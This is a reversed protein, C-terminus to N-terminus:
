ARRRLVLVAPTGLLLATVLMWPFSASENIGASGTKPPVPTVTPGSGVTTTTSTATPTPTTVTTPTSTPTSTPTPTPTPTSTPTPTPTRTPTPTPTPTRTPTPTPNPQRKNRVLCTESTDNGVLQVQGSPACDLDFEPAFWGAKSVETVLYVVGPAIHLSGSTGGCPINVSHLPVNSGQPTVNITFVDNTAPDCVKRITLSGAHNTIICSANQTSAPVVGAPACDLEFTAPAYGPAPVEGVTYQVNTLIALSGTSGNCPISVTHVPVNSGQPTVTITFLDNTAPECLKRVTLTRFTNTVTCNGNADDLVVVGEVDCDGGYTGTITGGEVVRYSINNLVSIPASTQGCALQVSAIVNQNLDRVQIPFTGPWNPPDCVKTVTLQRFDPTNRVVCTGNLNPQTSSFIFAGSGDCYGRISISNGGTLWGPPVVSEQLTLTSGFTTTPLDYTLSNGCQIESPGAVVTALANVVQVNFTSTDGPPPAPVCEKTVTLHPGGHNASAPESATTIAYSVAGAVLLVLASMVLLFRM